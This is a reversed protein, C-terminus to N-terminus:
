SLTVCVRFFIGLSCGGLGAVIAQIMVVICSQVLENPFLVIKKKKSDSASISGKDDGDFEPLSAVRGRQDNWTM